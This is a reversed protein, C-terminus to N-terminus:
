IILERRAASIASQAIELAVQVRREWNQPDADYVEAARRQDPQGAAQAQYRDASEWDLGDVSVSEVVFGARQLLVPWEGDTGLANGPSSNAILFEAAKRSFGKSGASYDMPKGVLYSVVRNSIAETQVLAQPHTCYAAETREVVLSDHKQIAAVTALWEAPRTEVWRLLRDFDAYQIHSAPAELAKRVSLYRGWSWDPAIVARLPPQSEHFTAGLVDKGSLLLFGLDQVAPIEQLESLVAPPMVIVLDSYVDRLLPL